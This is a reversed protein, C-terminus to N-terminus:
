PKNSWVESTLGVRYTPTLKFDSVVEKFARVAEDVEILVDDKWKEDISVTAKGVYIQNTDQILTCGV